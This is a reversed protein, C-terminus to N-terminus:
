DALDWQTIAIKLVWDAHTIELLKPARWEGASQWKLVTVTGEQWNAARGTLWDGLQEVPMTSITTIARSDVPLTALSAQRGEDLWFMQTKLRELQVAGMGFTGSLTLKDASRSVREWDFNVSDRAGQTTLAIKGSAQWATVSEPILTADADPARDQTACGSVLILASAIAM